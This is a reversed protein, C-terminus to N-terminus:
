KKQLTRSLNSFLNSFRSNLESKALADFRSRPSEPDLANLRDLTDRLDARNNSDVRPEFQHYRISPTGIPKPIHGVLWVNELDEQLIIACYLDQEFEFNIESVDDTTTSSVGFWDICNPDFGLENFTQRVASVSDWTGIDAPTLEHNM